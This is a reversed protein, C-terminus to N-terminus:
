PDPVRVALPLVVNQSFDHFDSFFGGKEFVGSNQFLTCFPVDPVFGGKKETHSGLNALSFVM